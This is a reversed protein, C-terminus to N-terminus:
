RVIWRMAVVLLALVIALPLLQSLNVKVILWFPLSPDTTIKPLGALILALVSVLVSFIGVVNAWYRRQEGAVLRQFRDELRRSHESLQELAENFNEPFLAPSSDSLLRPLEVDGVKITERIPLGDRAKLRYYTVPQGVAPRQDVQTEAQNAAVLEALTAALEDPAADPLRSRLTVEAVYNPVRDVLVRLIRTKLSEPM